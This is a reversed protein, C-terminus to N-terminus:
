SPPLLRAERIAQLTSDVVASEKANSLMSFLLLSQDIRLAGARLYKWENPRDPKDALEKDTVLFYLGEGGTGKIPLLPPDEELAKRKAAQRMNDVFARTTPDGKLVDAANPVLTLVMQYEGAPEMFMVNRSTSPDPKSTRFGWLSPITMALTGRGPVVFAREVTADAPDFRISALLADFADRDREAFPTKSAHIKACLGDRLWFRQLHRSVAGDSGVPVLVELDADSGESPSIEAQAFAKQERIYKHEADDRATKAERAPNIQVSVRLGSTESHAMTYTSFGPKHNNYEEIVGALEYRLHWPVGPYYAAVAPRSGEAYLSGVPWAALLLTAVIAKTRM